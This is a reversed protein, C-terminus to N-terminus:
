ISNSVIEGDAFGYRVRTNNSVVNHLQLDHFSKEIMTGDGWTFNYVYERLKDKGQELNVLSSILKSVNQPEVSQFVNNITDNLVETIDYEDM